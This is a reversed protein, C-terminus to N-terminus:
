GARSQLPRDASASQRSELAVLNAMDARSMYGVWETPLLWDHWHRGVRELATYWSRHAYGRYATDNEFFAYMYDPQWRLYIALLGIRALIDGIGSGRHDRHLWMDGHYACRGTMRELARCAVLPADSAYCRPLQLKLLDGLTSDATNDVKAAQVHVTCGSQDLGQIWFSTGPLLDFKEPNFLPSLTKGPLEPEVGYLGGIDERFILHVGHAEVSQVFTTLLEAAKIPNM